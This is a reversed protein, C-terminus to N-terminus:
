GAPVSPARRLLRCGFAPGATRGPEPEFRLLITSKGRTLGEPIAYTVTFFEGPAEAELQQTAIKEGDVLIHFLRKREEGWCVAQLELPGEEVRFRFEFFGGSRADRGPRRRYSVPYSIKSALGHAKEAAEEGLVLFDVSRADLARRAAEEAAVEGLRRRWGKEDFRRFYVATRREYQSYFPKFLLAGPRGIRRATYSAREGPVAVFDALLDDGVLAPEVGDFPATAAGLDAALVLPGDLLAVVGDDDPTAELRLRRPMELRLRDGAAFVRRLGLYGRELPVEQREGNLFLAPASCFAPVRLSVALERPEALSPFKLEASTGFPYETALELAAGPAHWELRSPICLNVLLHDDGPEMGQWYISDGHKAHSEM